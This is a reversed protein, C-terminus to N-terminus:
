LGMERYRSLLMGIGVVVLGWMTAERPLFMLMLLVVLLFWMITKWEEAPTKKQQVPTM